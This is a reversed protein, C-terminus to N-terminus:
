KNAKKINGLNLWWKKNKERDIKRQKKAKIQAKNM